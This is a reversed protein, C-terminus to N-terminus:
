ESRCCLLFLVGLVKKFFWSSSNKNFDFYLESHSQWRICFKLQQSNNDASEIRIGRVGLTGESHSRLMCVRAYIITKCSTDKIVSFSQVVIITSLITNMCSFIAICCRLGAANITSTAVGEPVRAAPM